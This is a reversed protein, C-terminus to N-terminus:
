SRLAAKKGGARVRAAAEEAYLRVRQHGASSALRELTPLAREDEAGGLSVVAALTVREDRDEVRACLWPILSPDHAAYEALARLA